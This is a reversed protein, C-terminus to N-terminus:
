ERGDDWVAAPGPSGHTSRSHRGTMRVRVTNRLEGAFLTTGVTQVWLISGARVLHPVPGGDVSGPDIGNVPPFETM